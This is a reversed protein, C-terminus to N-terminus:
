RRLVRQRVRGAGADKTKKAAKVGGRNTRPSRARSGERNVGRSLCTAGFLKEDPSNPADYGSEHGAPPAGESRSAFEGMFCGEDVSM